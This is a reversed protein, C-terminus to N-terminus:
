NDAREELHQEAKQERESRAAGSESKATRTVLSVSPRLPVRHSMM